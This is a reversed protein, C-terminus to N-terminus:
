NEGSMLSAFFELRKKEKTRLDISILQDRNVRRGKWRTVFERIKDLVTQDSPDFDRPLQLLFDMGGPFDTDEFACIIPLGSALYERNKLPSAEAMDLRDFALSSVAVDCQALLTRYESPAMRSHLRINTTLDVLLDPQPDGILDFQWAPFNKAVSLLRDVGHWPQWKDALFALRPHENTPASCVPIKSLDISNALVRFPKKFKVFQPRSALERTVFCLGSARRLLTSRTVRNYCYLPFSLQAYEVIDDSNVEVVCPNGAMVVTLSPHYVDYRHYILDPRNMQISKVARSIAKFRDTISRYPFIELSRDPFSVRVLDSGEGERIVISIQVECGLDSWCGVQGRVKQLVGTPISRYANILYAIRMM